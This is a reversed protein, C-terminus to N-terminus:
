GIHNEIEVDPKLDNKILSVTEAKTKYSQVARRYKQIADYEDKLKFVLMIATGIIVALKYWNVESQMAYISNGLAFTITLINGTSLTWKYEPKEPESINKNLANSLVGEHVQYTEIGMNVHAETIQVAHLNFSDQMQKLRRINNSPKPVAPLNKETSMKLGGLRTENKDALNSDLHM